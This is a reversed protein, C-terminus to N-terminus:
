NPKNLLVLSKVYSDVFTYQYGIIRLYKIMQTELHQSVLQGRPVELILEGNRTFGVGRPFFM